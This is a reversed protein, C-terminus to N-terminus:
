VLKFWKWIPAPLTVRTGHDIWEGGGRLSKTDRLFLSAL